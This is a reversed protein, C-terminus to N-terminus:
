RHGAKTQNTCWLRDAMAFASVSSISRRPLGPSPTAADFSTKGLSVNITEVRADSHGSCDMTCSLPRVTNRRHWAVVVRNARRRAARGGRGLDVRGGEGLIADRCDDTLTVAGQCLGRGSSQLPSRRRVRDLM